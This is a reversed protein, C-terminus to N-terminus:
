KLVSILREEPIFNLSMLKSESLSRGKGLDLYNEEEDFTILISYDRVQITSPRPAGTYCLRRVSMMSHNTTPHRVIIFDHLDRIGPLKTYKASLRDRWPYVLKGDDVVATIEPSESMVTALEATTFVDSNAYAKSTISFVRDVDFKTHGPIM